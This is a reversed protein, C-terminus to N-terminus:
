VLNQPIRQLVRRALVADLEQVTGQTLLEAVLDECEAISFGRIVRKIRPVASAHMSLQTFGMGLLLDAFVNQVFIVPTKTGEFM